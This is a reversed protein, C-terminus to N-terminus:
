TLLLGSLPRGESLALEDKVTPNRRLEAETVLSLFPLMLQNLAQVASHTFITTRAPDLGAALYDLVLGHVNAGMEGVSDRDTIVQYDAIVVFTEVGRDQLRVRNRLSALYHGIHLPGTPRDGTLMRFRTPDEDAHEDILADLVASRERAAAYTASEDLHLDSRPAASARSRRTNATTQTM